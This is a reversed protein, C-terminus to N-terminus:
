LSMRDKVCVCFVCVCLYVAKCVRACVCVCLSSTVLAHTYDMRPPWKGTRLSDAFRSRRFGRIVVFGIWLTPTLLSWVLSFTGEGGRVCM